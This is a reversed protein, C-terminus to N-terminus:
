RRQAPRGVHHFDHEAGRVAGITSRNDDPRMGSPTLQGLVIAFADDPQHSCWTPASTRPRGSSVPLAARFRRATRPMQRGCRGAWGERQALAGHADDPQIAIHGVADQGCALGLERRRATRSRWFMRIAPRRAAAFGCEGIGQKRLDGGRAVAYKHEFVGDLCHAARSWTGSRVRAPTTDIVSSTRAM